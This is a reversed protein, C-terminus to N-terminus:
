GTVALVGHAGREADVMLHSVFPYRGAEPPALEVFGGQAPMLGLVQSGGTADPRAAPGGLLYAGEFFVTDFQGGVVHFASSRSPGADLVWIRVREGARATLPADDYQNPYGNFVVADPAEATIKASDAIGGRPGLYQESQVVVYERDVPPLDPPDIIVAGFMGNAIHLSMPMTSCHYMWIGSRTATFTYTLEEGPEITRMPGDPALAGAHFDISHGLGADNVLTIEFVDGVTGRLVPGPSTGGFSWTTQRVGPAVEREVATVPLRVRHLGADTAPALVPDRPVFGAGPEGGLDLDEAASPATAGDAQGGGAMGGSHALGGGDATGGGDPGGSVIVDFVMGLQRHGAISCWGALGRGVVGVDVRTTTAPTIRGSTAGSDLVLDHATTDDNTVVLVLRDGAQVRVSDPEFRMDLARVEVEVTRGTAPVGAASSAGLGVAAPDAAIGLVVVLALAAGAAIGQTRRGRRGTAARDVATAARGLRRSVVAARVLLVPTWILVGLVLMSAGVLTLSPVPLLCLALGGNALVLRSVGARDAVAACARVAAPGGGLVMPVLYTLSGLLVQAAFGVALPALLSSVRVAADAWTSSTALIVAWATVSGFLWAWAAAVSWTAFSSPPRRRAEAVMPWGTCVLGLLYGLAGAVAIWRSGAVAGLVVAALGGILVVLGRRAALEAGPAVQVHLMTPWLTILTGVVTLGVWGLLMAAVHAVYLRAHWGGAADPRALLVGLAIGVPLAHTASVFYSVTWGLRAALARHGQDWLVVTHWVGVVVILLAGALVEPTRGSTLGAMVTLAGATHMALRIAQHRRGGRLPRRRLAEAFHASWILIAASVAGLLLLHTMLLRADPIGRHSIAVVASALLWGLVVANARLHWRSRM